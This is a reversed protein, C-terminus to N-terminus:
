DASTHFTHVAFMYLNTCKGYGLVNGDDSKIVFRNKLTLATIPQLYAFHDSKNTTLVNGEGM